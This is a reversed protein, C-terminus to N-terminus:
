KQELTLFCPPQYNLIPQINSYYTCLPMISFTRSLPQIQMQLVPNTNTLVLFCCWPYHPISFIHARVPPVSKYKKHVKLITNFTFALRDLFTYAALSVHRHFTIWWKSRDKRVYCTLACFKKTPHNASRSRTRFTGPPFMQRFAWKSVCTETTKGEREMCTDPYYKLNPRSQKRVCGEALWWESDTV